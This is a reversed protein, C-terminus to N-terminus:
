FLTKVILALFLITFTNLLTYFRVGSARTTVIGISTHVSFPSHNTPQRSRPHPYTPSWVTVCQDARLRGCWDACRDCQCIPSNQNATRFRNITSIKFNTYVLKNKPSTKCFANWRFHCYLLFLGLVVMYLCNLPNVFMYTCLNIKWRWNLYHVSKCKWSNQFKPGQESNPIEQELWELPLIATYHGPWLPWWHM